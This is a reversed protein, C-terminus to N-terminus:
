QRVTTAPQDGGRQQAADEKAPVEGRWAGTPTGRQEVFNKFAELDREVQIFAM